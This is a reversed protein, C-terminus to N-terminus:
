LIIGTTNYLLLHVFDIKHIFYTFHIISYKEQRNKTVIKLYSAMPSTHPPQNFLPFTDFDEAVLRSAVVQLVFNCM